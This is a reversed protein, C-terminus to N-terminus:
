IVDNNMQKLRHWEAWEDSSLDDPEEEPGEVFKYRQAIELIIFLVIMMGYAVTFRWGDDTQRYLVGVTSSHIIGFFSLLAAILAWVIGRIFKRDIMYMVIATLLICQLLSGGALNSIGRYSFDTILSTVNNAFNVNSITLTSYADAVGIIITGSAWDALSPTL